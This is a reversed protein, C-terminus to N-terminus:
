QCILDEFPILQFEKPFTQKRSCIACKYTQDIEYKQFYWKTDSDIGKLLFAAGDAVQISFSQLSYGFGIGIAKLYSEKYTWLDYFFNLRSIEPQAFYAEQEKETFQGILDKLDNLPAIYEIDIGIPEDDTALVIMEHSHSLNFFRKKNMLYPKGYMDAAFILSSSPIGLELSLARKLFLEAILYRWQDILLRAKIIKTQTEKSVKSVLNQLIVPDQLLVRTM